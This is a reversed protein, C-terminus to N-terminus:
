GFLGGALSGLGRGIDTFIGRGKQGRGSMMMHGTGIQGAPFLARKRASPAASVVVLKRPRGSRRSTTLKIGTSARRRRTRARKTGKRKRGYGLMSAATSAIGSGPFPLLGLGKSILKNDKVFKHIDSVIGKGKQTKRRVRTTGKKARPM